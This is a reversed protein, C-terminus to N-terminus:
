RERSNIIITVPGDNKIDVSMEAGFVGTKIKNPEYKEKLKKVFDEYIKEAEKPKMAKTFDPRRGKKTDGLLTFQSIVLAEGNIDKLSLDFKGETNSFIRLNLIKDCLWEIDKDCDDEAIGILINLGEGIKSYLNNDITVSSEKVRQVVCIM